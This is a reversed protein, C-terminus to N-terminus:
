WKIGHKKAEATKAWDKAEAKTDFSEGEVM